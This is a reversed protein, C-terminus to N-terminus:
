QSNIGSKYNKIGRLDKENLIKCGTLKRYFQIEVPYTM